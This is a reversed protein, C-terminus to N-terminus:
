GLPGRARAERKARAIPDEIVQVVKRHLQGDGLLEVTITAGVPTAFLIREARAISYPDLGQIALLIDGPHIGSRDAPSGPVVGTVTLIGQDEELSLKERTSDPVEAVSWGIWPRRVEGYTLLELAVWRATNIPIALHVGVSGERMSAYTATSVGIVEGSANVLPGGSNGEHILADTQIMKTYPGTGPGPHPGPADRGVASIVGVSVSPERSGLEYGFPSGIAIAWEGVMLDDSDGLRVPVIRTGGPELGGDPSPSVLLLALDFRPATGVVVAHMSMGAHGASVIIRSAGRVVHENTLLHGDADIFFGSAVWESAAGHEPAFPFWLLEQGPDPLLRTGQVRITVVSGRTREVADVIANRRSQRLAASRAATRRAASATYWRELGLAGLGVLVGALCGLLIPRPV